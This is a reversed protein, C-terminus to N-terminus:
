PKLPKFFSAIIGISNVLGHFGIIALLFCYWVFAEEGRHSYLYNYTMLSGYLLTIGFNISFTRAKKKSRVVLFLLTFLYCTFIIILMQNDESM